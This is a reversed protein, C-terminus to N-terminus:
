ASASVTGASATVASGVIQPLAAVQLVLACPVECRVTMLKYADLRDEDTITEIYKSGLAQLAGLISAEIDFLATYVAELGEANALSSGFYILTEISRGSYPKGPAIRTPVIRIMPYDSPSINAELGIKSSTIGPILRLTDRLSELEPIM